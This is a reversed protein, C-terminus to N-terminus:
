WIYVVVKRGRCRVRSERPSGDEETDESDGRKDGWRDGRVGEGKLGM